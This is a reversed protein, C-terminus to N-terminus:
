VEHNVRELMVDIMGETTHEQAVLLNEFGAEQAAEATSPGICITFANMLSDPLLSPAFWALLGSACSASTFTIFDFHVQEIQKKEADSIDRFTNFYVLVRDIQVDGLAEISSQTTRNGQPMLYRKGVELKSLMEQALFLEPVVDVDMERQNLYHETVPGVAVLQRTQLVEKQRQVEVEDLFYKAGNLSSFIVGDYQGLHQVSNQLPKQDLAPKILISPKIIPKADLQELKSAFIEAQFQPRTILITKGALNVQSM